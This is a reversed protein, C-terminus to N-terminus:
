PTVGSRWVTSSLNNASRYQQSKLLVKVLPKVRYGGEVLATTMQDRLASDETGLSRGLFSEAVNQAV